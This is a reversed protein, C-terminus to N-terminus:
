DTTRKNFIRQYLVYAGIVGAILYLPSFTYLYRARAETLEVFVFMAAISMTLALVVDHYKEQPKYFVLGLSLLFVTLWILQAM